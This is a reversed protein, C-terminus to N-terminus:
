SHVLARVHARVCKELADVNYGGELVSVIPLGLQAVEQTLWAFDEEGLTMTATPDAAHADFGASLFVAEAGFDRVAPLLVDRWAARFEDPGCGVPLPCNLLQGHLGDCGWEAGTMPWLESEHSSAYLRTPDCFSIEADGNGHHVDFDLIAVNGLGHAAQAHAVGLLVNNYVCFGGGKGAEAHHGPPRVMVFARPPAGDGGAKARELVDDVAAVVLGAARAAAAQTGASLVTDRDLNVRCAPGPRQTNAFLGELRKLYQPTHVRLLQEETVDQELERIQLLESGLEARWEDKAELLRTLRKVSEPHWNPSGDKKKGKAGPDHGLCVDSTYLTLPTALSLTAAACLQLM